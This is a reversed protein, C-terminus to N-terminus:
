PIAGRVGYMATVTVLGASCLCYWLAWREPEDDHRWRVFAVLLPFATYLFRPRATVTAPLLMLLLVVASYAAAAPPLRRRWAAVVLVVMAALSLTTLADTPSSLPRRVFDYLGDLASLGFTVGEDWAERQVRFWVGAEGTHHWLFAQFGVFGAPSLLPAVLPRWGGGRRMALLAAVACAAVLAVGNPRTATGAAALVGALFWEERHLALLCAAALTLLLAESYMFSLVFSGPFLAVLVMTREAAEVGYWERALAGVLVVFAAGLLLNVLLGTVAPGGPVLPDLLGVLRPFAPFFATRAPFDDYTIGNPVDRPYGDSVIRLYWKGDWSTLVDRLLRAANAPREGKADNIEVVQQAAVISAGALVFVRSVVYAVLGTRWARSWSSPHEPRDPRSM